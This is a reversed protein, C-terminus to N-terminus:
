KKKLSWYSPQLTAHKGLQRLHSQSSQSLAIIDLKFSQLTGTLGVSSASGFKDLKKGASASQVAKLFWTSGFLLMWLNEAGRHLMHDCIELQMVALANKGATAIM